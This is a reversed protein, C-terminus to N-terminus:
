NSLENFRDNIIELRKESDISTIDEANMSRYTNKMLEELSIFDSKENPYFIRISRGYDTDSLRISRDELPIVTHYRATAIMLPAVTANLRLKNTYSRYSAELDEDRKSKKYPLCRNDRDKFISYSIFKKVNVEEDEASGREEIEIKHSMIIIEVERGLAKSGALMGENYHHLMDVQKVFGQCKQIVSNADGNLQAGTVTPISYRIGLDRLEKGKQQLVAANEAGSVGMGRHTYSEVTMKDLYDVCLLVTQYGDNKLNIIHEEIDSISTRTDKIREAYIIPLHFGLKKRAVLILKELDKDDMNKLETENIFIGMFSLDRELLQRKSMELSEFLIVPKMNDDLNFDDVTNNMSAYMAINQLTGSKFNGPLAAFIIETGPLFGGGVMRDIVPLSKVKNNSAIRMEDLAKSVTGHTTDDIPDIILLESSASSHKTEFSIKNMESLRAYFKDMAKIASKKDRNSEIISMLENMETLFPKLNSVMKKSTLGSLLDEKFKVGVKSKYNISSRILPSYDLDKLFFIAESKEIVNNKIIYDLFSLTNKIDKTNKDEASLMNLARKTGTIFSKDKLDSLVASLIVAHKDPEIIPVEDNFNEKM